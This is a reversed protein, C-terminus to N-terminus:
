RDSDSTPSTATSSPPHHHSPGADARDGVVTIRLDPVLADLREALGPTARAVLGDATRELVLADCGELEAARELALDPGLVFLGTSLADARTADDCLVTVSGTFALATPAAGRPDVLHGPRLAQSSTAAGDFPPDIALVARARDQPDALEIAARAGGRQLVQGGFSLHVADAGAAHAADAALALARGKGWGGTDIRAADLHGTVIADSDLADSDTADSDVADADVHAADNQGAAYQGAANQGAAVPADADRRSAALSRRPDFAGDTAAVWPEFSALDALLEPSAAADGRALREIESTPDWNSLRAETREVAAIAAETAALAEARSPATCTVTLETGMAGVVRRVTAGAPADADGSSPACGLAAVTLALPLLAAAPRM